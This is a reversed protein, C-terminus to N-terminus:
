ARGSPPADRAATSGNATKLVELAPAQADVVFRPFGVELVVEICEHEAEIPAPCTVSGEVSQAVTGTTQVAEPSSYALPRYGAAPKMM